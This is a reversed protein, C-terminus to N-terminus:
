SIQKLKYVSEIYKKVDIFVNCAMCFFIRESRIRKYKKTIEALLWPLMRSIIRESSIPDVWAAFTAHMFDYVSPIVCDTSSMTGQGQNSSATVM